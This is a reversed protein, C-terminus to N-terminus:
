VILDRADGLQWIYRGGRHGANKGYGFRMYAGLRTRPTTTKGTAGAKGINLVLAGEIWKDELYSVIETPDKGKHRGGISKGLFEPPSSSSRLALYVGAKDPIERCGRAQLDRVTVFSEFGHNRIDDISQFDM